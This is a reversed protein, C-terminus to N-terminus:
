ENYIHYILVIMGIFEILGGIISGYVCDKTLSLSDVRLLMYKIRNSLLVGWIFLIVVIMFAKM